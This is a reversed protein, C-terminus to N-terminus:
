TLEDIKAKLARIDQWTLDKPSGKARSANRLLYSPHFMPFLKIGRWNLWQGRLSTIGQKTKLLWQTSINGMTVVIQPHLLLLQAEIYESCALMEEQEPNRNNPPRCKVINAIYVSNRPIGGGNELISTLLQGAAGVFPRGSLDEEEGPGEGIIIVKCNEVPGEGFVTNHRGECLKCKRCNQVRSKLEEWASNIDISM